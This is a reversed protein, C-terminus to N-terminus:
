RNRSEIAEPKLAIGSRLSGLEVGRPSLARRVRATSETREIVISEIFGNTCEGVQAILIRGWRGGRTPHKRPRLVLSLYPQRTISLIPLTLSTIITQKLLLSASPSNNIWLCLTLILDTPKEAFSSTLTISSIHHCHLPSVAFNEYRHWAIQSIAWRTRFGKVKTANWGGISEGHKWTM